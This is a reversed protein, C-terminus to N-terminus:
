FRFLFKPAIAVGGFDKAILDDLNYTTYNVDVGLTIHTYRSSFFKWHLGPAIYISLKETSLSQGNFDTISPPFNLFLASAGLGLGLELKSKTSKKTLNQSFRVATNLIFEPSIEGGISTAPNTILLPENEQLRVYQFIVTISKNRRAPLYLDIDVYPSPKIYQAFDGQPIFIGGGVEFKPRSEPLNYVFNPDDGWYDISDKKVTTTTNQAISMLSCLCLTILSLTKM